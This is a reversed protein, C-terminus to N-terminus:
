LIGDDPNIEKTEEKIGKVAADMCEDCCIMLKTFSPALKQLVKTYVFMLWANYGMFTIAIIILAVEWLNM